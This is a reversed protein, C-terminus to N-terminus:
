VYARPYRVVVNGMAEAVVCCQIVNYAWTIPNDVMQNPKGNCVQTPRPAGFSYPAQHLGFANWLTELAIVRGM